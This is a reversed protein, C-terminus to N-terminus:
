NNVRQRATARYTVPGKSTLEHHFRRADLIELLKVEDGPLINYRGKPGKKLNIGHTRAYKLFKSQDIEGLDTRAAISAALRAVRPRTAVNAKIHSLDLFTVTTHIHEVKEESAAAIHEVLGAIYEIPRPNLIFVHDETILADFERDLKLVDEPIIQLSDNVLRILRNRSKLMGKFATAKKVGIAKRGKQDWATTFYYDVSSIQQQLNSLDDFGETDFLLSLGQMLEHDRPAFIRREAGYDESIDFEQWDGEIKDFQASTNALMEKLAKQIDGDTPVFFLQSDPKLCVGFNVSKINEVSFDSDIM